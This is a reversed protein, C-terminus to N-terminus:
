RQIAIKLAGLTKDHYAVCTEGEPTIELSTFLGTNGATDVNEVIWGENTKRAVRLDGGGQCDSDTTRGCYYYSIVPQGDPGYALSCYKGVQNHSEVTELHWVGSFNAAYKLDQNRDDYFAIGFGDAPRRRISLSGEACKGVADVTHFEWGEDGRRAFKVPQSDGDLNGCYAIAPQGEEDFVLQTYYGGGDPEVTESEWGDTTLHAFKLDRWHFDTYDIGNGLDQYSIGPRGFRDFAVSAWLGVVGAEDVTEWQWAGGNEAALLLDSQFPWYYLPQRDGGVFAMAPNGSGDLALSCGTGTDTEYVTEINWSWGDFVAHRIRYSPEGGAFYSVQMRGQPDMLLSNQQGANENTDVVEISWNGSGPGGGGGGGGGGNGGDMDAEGSLGGSGCGTGTHLLFALALLFLFDQLRTIRL